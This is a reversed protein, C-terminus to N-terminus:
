PNQDETDWYWTVSIRVQFEKGCSNCWLETTDEDYYFSEDTEQRHGCHPCKPGVSSWDGFHEKGM